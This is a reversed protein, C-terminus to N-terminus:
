IPVSERASRRDDWLSLAASTQATDGARVAAAIELLFPMDGRLEDLERTAAERQQEHVREMARRARKLDHITM